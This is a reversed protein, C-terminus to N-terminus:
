EKVDKVVVERDEDSGDKVTESSVANEEAPKAGSHSLLASAAVALNFAGYVILVIGLVVSCFEAFGGVTRLCIGVALSAAGIAAGILLMSFPEKRAFYALFADLMYLGGIVILAYAIFYYVYSQLNMEICLVGYAILVARGIGSSILEHDKDFIDVVIGFAGLIILVVGMIVSLATLGANISFCFTVGVVVTIVSSIFKLIASNKM